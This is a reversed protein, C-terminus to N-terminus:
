IINKTFYNILKGLKIHRINTYARTIGYYRTWNCLYSCLRYTHGKLINEKIKSYFNLLFYKIIPQYIAMEQLYSVKKHRFYKIIYRFRQPDFQASVEPTQFSNLTYALPREGISSPKCRQQDNHCTDSLYLYILKNVEPNQWPRLFFYRRTNQQVHANYIHNSHFHQYLNKGRYLKSTM